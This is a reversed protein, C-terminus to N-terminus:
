KNSKYEFWITDLLTDKFKNKDTKGDKWNKNSHGVIRKFKVKPDKIIELIQYNSNNYCDRASFILCNKETGTKKNKVIGQTTYMFMKVRAKNKSLLKGMEKLIKNLNEEGVYKDLPIDLISVSRDEDVIIAYCIPLLTNGNMVSEKNKDTIFDYIDKIKKSIIKSM